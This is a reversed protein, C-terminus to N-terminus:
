QRGFPLAMSRFYIKMNARNKTRTGGTSTYYNGSKFEVYGFVTQKRTSDPIESLIIKTDTCPVEIRFILSDKENYAVSPIEDSALMHYLTVHGKVIKITFGDGMFLGFAGDIGLTDHLWYYFSKFVMKTDSSDMTSLVLSDNEFAEAFIRNNYILDKFTAPLNGFESNTIYKKAEGEIKPDIIFGKQTTQGFSSLAITLLVIVSILKSM